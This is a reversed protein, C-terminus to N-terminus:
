RSEAISNGMWFSRAGFSLHNVQDVAIQATQTRNKNAHRSTKTTPHSTDFNQFYEVNTFIGLHKYTGSLRHVRNKVWKEYTLFVDIPIGVGLRM